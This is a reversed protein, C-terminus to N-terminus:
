YRPRNCIQCRDVLVKNLWGCHLCTWAMLASAVAESVEEDSPQHSLRSAVTRLFVDRMAVPVVAAAVVVNEFQSDTFSVPGSITALHSIIGSDVAVIPAVQDDPFTVFEQDDNAM